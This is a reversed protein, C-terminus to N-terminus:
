RMQVYCVISLQCQRSGNPGARPPRMGVLQVGGVMFSGDVCVTTWCCIDIDLRGEIRIHAYTISALAGPTALGPQTKTM